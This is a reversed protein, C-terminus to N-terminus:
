AFIRFRASTLMEPTITSDANSIVRVYAPVASTGCTVLIGSNKWGLATSSPMFNKDSDYFCYSFQLSTDGARAVVSFKKGTFDNVGSVDLYSAMRLGTSSSASDGSNVYYTGQEWEEGTIDIDMEYVMEAAGVVGVVGEAVASALAPASGGGSRQSLEAYAADIKEFNANLYAEDFLDDDGVLALTLNETYEM